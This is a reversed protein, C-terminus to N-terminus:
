IVKATKELFAKMLRLYSGNGVHRTGCDFHDQRICFSICTRIQDGTLSAIREEQYEEGPFIRKRKMEDVKELYDQTIIKEEYAEQYFHDYLFKFLGSHKKMVDEPVPFFGGGGGHSCVDKLEEDGDIMELVPIYKRCFAALREDDSKQRTFARFFSSIDYIDQKLEFFGASPIKCGPDESLEKEWEAMTKEYYFSERVTHSQIADAYAHVTAYYQPIRKLEGATLKWEDIPDAFSADRYCVEEQPLVASLQALEQRVEMLIIGLQNRSDYSWNKTELRAPDSIDIGIGWRNDKPSCEALLERGTALLEKRIDPNQVFKARVGRKVITRANHDWIDSRFEPFTQKAIKKCEKPDKTALIQKGLDERGFMMVKHYMMFQESNEFHHSAYDFEAHYWNSFCGYEYYEHYFGIM